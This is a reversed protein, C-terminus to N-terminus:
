LGGDAVGSWSDAFAALQRIPAILSTSPRQGSSRPDDRSVCCPSSTRESGHHIEGDDTRRRGVHAGKV